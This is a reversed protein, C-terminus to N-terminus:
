CARTRDELFIHPQESPFVVSSEWAIKGRSTVGRTKQLRHGHRTGFNDNTGFVLPRTRRDSRDSSKLKRELVEDLLRAVVAHRVQDDEAQSRFGPRVRMRAVEIHSEPM